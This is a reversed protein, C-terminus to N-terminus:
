SSLRPHLSWFEGHQLTESCKTIQSSGSNFPLFLSKTRATFM